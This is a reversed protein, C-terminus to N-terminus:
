KMGTVSELWIGRGEVIKFDPSGCEPCKQYVHIIEPVFHIAEKTDEDLKEEIFTWNHGCVRCSLKVKEQVIRFKADKFRSTKLQSLAFDFVDEEIQQLAGLKIKVEEVEKKTIIITKM